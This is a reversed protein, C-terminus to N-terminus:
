LISSGSKYSPYVRPISDLVLKFRAQSSMAYTEQFWKSWILAGMAGLGSGSLITTSKLNTIAVISAFIAKVISNGRFYLDKNKYKTPQNAYGQFLGGDCHPVIVKLWKQSDLSDFITNNFTM